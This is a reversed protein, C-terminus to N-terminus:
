DKGELVELGARFRGMKWEVFLETDMLCPYTSLMCLTKQKLILGAAHVGALSSLLSSLTSLSLKSWPSISKFGQHKLNEIVVFSQSGPVFRPVINAHTLAHAPM